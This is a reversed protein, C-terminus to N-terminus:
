NPGWTAPDGGTIYGQSDDVEVIFHEISIGDGTEWPCDSHIQEYTHVETDHERILEEIEKEIETIRTITNSYIVKKESCPIWCGHPCAKAERWADEFHGASRLMM